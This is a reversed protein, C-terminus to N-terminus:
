IERIEAAYASLDMSETGLNASPAKPDEQRANAKVRETIAKDWESKISQILEDATERESSNVILEAFSAPMGHTALETTVDALFERREAAAERDALAKERAELDASVREEETMKSRKEAEEVAKKVAADIAAESKKEQRSLANAVAKSIHSDLESQTYTVDQETEQETETETVETEENELNELNTIEGPM